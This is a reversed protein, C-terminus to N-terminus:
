ISFMWKCMWTLDPTTQWHSCLEKVIAAVTIAGIIVTQNQLHLYRNLQLKM